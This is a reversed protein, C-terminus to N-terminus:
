SKPPLRSLIEQLLSEQRQQTAKLTAIDDKVASIDEKTAMTKLLEGHDSQTAKISTIDARAGKMEGKLLAVDTQVRGSINYITQLQASHENQKSLITQLQATQSDQESSIEQLMAKHNEFATEIDTQRREIAKIPETQGREIRYVREELNKIRDETPQNM